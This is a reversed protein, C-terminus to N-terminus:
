SAQPCRRKDVVVTLRASVRWRNSLFTSVIFKHVNRNAGAYAGFMVARAWLDHELLPSRAIMTMAAM